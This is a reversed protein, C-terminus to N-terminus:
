CEACRVVQPIKEIAARHAALIYLLGLALAILWRLHDYDTRNAAAAFGYHRVKQFRTPLVHQLFRRLFEEASVTMKRWRNTGTKRYTFTVQGAGDPGDEVSVIRRDSIAVRFVYPALYQL